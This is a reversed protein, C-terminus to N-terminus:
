VTAIEFHVPDGAVGPPEGLVMVEVDTPQALMGSLARTLPDRRDLGVTLFSCRGHLRRCGHLLLSRLTDPDAACPNVVTRYTLTKGPSPLPPVRFIPAAANFAVRAVALRPSYGTVRMQKLRHQDWLGAFGALEGGPRHALLFQLGPGTVPFTDHVPAFPRSAALRRWLAVMAPVDALEATRVRLPTRPIRRHWLLSISHSRITALRRAEPAFDRQLAEVASNGTLVTAFLVADPGAMERASEIAWGALARAAGRRRFAPHVKLDGVYGADAPHGNLYVRRRAVAICAVPGTQGTGDDGDIVGVRWPDGALRNLAFFDPARDLCLSLHGNMPCRAALAVLAENDAATADRVQLGTM